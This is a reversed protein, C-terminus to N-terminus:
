ESRMTTAATPGTIYMPHDSDSPRYVPSSDSVKRFPLKGKKRNIFGIKRLMLEDVWLTISLPVNLMTSKFDFGNHVCSPLHKGFVCPRSDGGGVSWARINKKACGTKDDFAPSKAVVQSKGANGSDSWDEVLGDEVGLGEGGGGDIQFKHRSLV